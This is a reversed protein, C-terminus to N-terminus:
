NFGIYPSSKVSVPKIKIASNHYTNNCKNTIDDLKDIYVKKM